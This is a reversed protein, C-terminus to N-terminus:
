CKAFFVGPPPTPLSRADSKEFNDNQNGLRSITFKSIKLKPKQSLMIM